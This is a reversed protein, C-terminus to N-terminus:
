QLHYTLRAKVVYVDNDASLSGVLNGSAFFTVKDEDFLYLLVQRPLGPM